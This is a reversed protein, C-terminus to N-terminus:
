EDNGGWGLAKMIKGPLESKKAHFSAGRAEPAIRAKDRKIQAELDIAEDENLNDFKMWMAHDRSM